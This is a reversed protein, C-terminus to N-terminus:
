PTPSPQRSPVSHQGSFQKPVHLLTRLWGEIQWSEFLKSVVYCLTRSQSASMTRFLWVLLSMLLHVRQPPLHVTRYLCTNPWHWGRSNHHHRTKILKLIMAYVNSPTHQYNLQETTDSEKHGWPSCCALSGQGDGAGLDQEFEHGDLQHHWGVM